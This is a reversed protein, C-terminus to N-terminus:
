RGYEAALIRDVDSMPLLEGSDGIAERAVKDIHDAWLQLAPRVVPLMEAFDYHKGTVDQRQHNLIADHVDRDRVGLEKLRSIIAKRIDHVNLDVLGHEIRLRGMAASVSDEHFHPRAPVKGKRVTGGSPFLYEGNTAALLAEVIEVAQRSLPVLQEIGNKTRGHKIRGHGDRRDGPIIWIPATITRGEINTTTGTLTIESRRIGCVEARRQGTLLTLLIVQRMPLSMQADESKLARALSGIEADSVIRKRAVTRPDKRKAIDRTPNTIVLRRQRGWRYTGGIAHKLHDATRKGLGEARNRKEIEDMASSIMDPTLEDAPLHGYKPLVDRKLMARYETATSAAITDDEPARDDTGLRLDVLGQLTLAEKRALKDAAPDGNADVIRRLDKARARADDLSIAEADGIAVRRRKGDVIRTYNFSWARKGDEREEGVKRGAWVRLELGTVVLDRIELVTTGESPKATEVRRATLREKAM